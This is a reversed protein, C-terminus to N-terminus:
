QSELRMKEVAVLIWRANAKQSHCTSLTLVVDYPEVEEARYFPARKKLEKVYDVCNYEETSHIFTNFNFFKDPNTLDLGYAGIIHFIQKSHETYFHLIYHTQLFKEDKYNNLTSFMNFSSMNHGHVILNNSKALDSDRDFFLSGNADYDKHINRCLYFENDITQMVPYYIDTGCIELIGKTDSNLEKLKQVEAMKKRDDESFLTVATQKPNSENQIQQAVDKLAKQNEDPFYKRLVEYAFFMMLIAFLVPVLRKM